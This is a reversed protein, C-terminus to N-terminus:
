GQNIEITLHKRSDQRLFVQSLTFQQPLFQSTEIWVDEQIKDVLNVLTEYNKLAFKKKEILNRDM